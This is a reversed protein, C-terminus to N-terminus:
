AKSLGHAASLWPMIFMAGELSCTIARSEAIGIKESM